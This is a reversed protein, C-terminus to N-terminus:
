KYGHLLIAVINSVRKDNCGGSTADERRCFSGVAKSNPSLQQNRHGIIKRM